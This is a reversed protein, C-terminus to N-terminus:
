DARSAGLDALEIHVGREQFVRLLDARVARTAILVVQHKPARDGWEVVVGDYWWWRTPRASRVMALPVDILAVRSWLLRLIFRQNTITVGAVGWLGFGRYTVAGRFRYVVTETRGLGRYWSAAGIIRLVGGVIVGLFMTDAIVVLLGLLVVIERSPTDAPM